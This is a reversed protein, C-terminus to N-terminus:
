FISQLMEYKTLDITQYALFVFECFRSTLRHEFTFCLLMLWLLLWSSRPLVPDAATIWMGPLQIQWCFLRDKFSSYGTSIYRRKLDPSDFHRVSCYNLCEHECECVSPPLSCKLVAARLFVSLFSAPAVPNESWWWHAISNFQRAWSYLSRCLLPQPDFLCGELQLVYKQRWQPKILSVFCALALPSRHSTM